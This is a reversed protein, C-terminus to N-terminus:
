NCGAVPEVGAIRDTCTLCQMEVKTGAPIPGQAVEKATRLVNIIQGNLPCKKADSALQWCDGVQDPPPNTLSYSPDCQPLSQPSETYTPPNTSTNVTRWAVRCDPRGTAPNMWLKYNVCLNELKVAIAQGIESMAATYDTECISFKLGNAGFEDVFASERIGPGAGWGWADADFGTTPDPNRPGHNPDYCLSWYDYIEPHTTDAINPNPRLAFKVPEANKMDGGLPWGFIGAVLIQNDPDAKLGRIERAIRRYDTLPNCDTPGSTDYTSKTNGDLTGPCYDTRPACSAFNAQFSQSTPYGPPPTTLNQGSCAYARTSCRLSASEGRLEPKDGFLGDNPAASCDDEDSLFVLGLYAEPRLMKQQAENGIGSAALAFEFAQLQHEEGCGLTGLGGALCAFVTSIDGGAPPAFNVPKGSKYELWMANSDTVGCSQAGIMQFRGLDGYVSTTGDPLLKPGCSGNSYAGGTGLDSDIIAIRLDPLANNNNPDQLATILNPFQAQLKAQKPAMSPSNDIMFVLDLERVPSVSIYLDTEQEPLPTPQTLPHSACAWWVLPVASLVLAWRLYRWHIFAAISSSNRIMM